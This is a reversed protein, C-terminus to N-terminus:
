NANQKELPILRNELLYILMKARSESETDSYTIYRVVYEEIYVCTFDGLRSNVYSITAMSSLILGLESCTFASLMFDKLNGENCHKYRNGEYHLEWHNYAPTVPSNFYVWHFLSEQKVGLEKLRKASELSIVQQEIPLM